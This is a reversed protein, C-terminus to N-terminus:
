AHYFLPTYAHAQPTAVAAPSVPTFDKGERWAVTQQKPKREKRSSRLRRNSPSSHNSLIQELSMSSPGNFLCPSGQLAWGHKQMDPLGQGRGHRPLIACTDCSSQCANTRLALKYGRLVTTDVEKKSCVTSKSSSSDGHNMVLAYDM